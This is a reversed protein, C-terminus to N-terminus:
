FSYAASVAVARPKGVSRAGPGLGASGLWALQVNCAGADIGLALRLDVRDRENHLGHLLGIHGILTIRERLPHFANLEGYATRGGFGYYSPSFYLRGSLHDSALGAFVERYNYDASGQFTTSSAGAEWSLGSALRDTFGGYAIFQNAQTREGLSVRPAAFAGAYWGQHFDYGVSLQPTPRGDSLSVGRASYESAISVSASAQGQAAQAALLGSALLAARTLARAWHIISQESERRRSLYMFLRM